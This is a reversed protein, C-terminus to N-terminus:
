VNETIKPSAVFTSVEAPERSARDVEDFIFAVVRQEQALCEKALQYGRRNCAYGSRPM